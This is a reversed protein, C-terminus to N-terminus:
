RCNWGCGRKCYWDGWAHIDLVHCLIQRKLWAMM